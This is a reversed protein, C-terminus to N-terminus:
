EKEEMRPLFFNAAFLETLFLLAIWPGWSLAIDNHVPDKMFVLGLMGLIFVYWGIFRPVVFLVVLSFCFAILMALGFRFDVIDSSSYIDNTGFVVSLMVPMSCMIIFCMGFFMVPWFEYFYWGVTNEPPHHHATPENKKPDAM